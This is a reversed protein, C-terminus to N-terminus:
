PTATNPGTVGALQKKFDAESMSWEGTAANEVKAGRKEWGARVKPDTEAGAPNRFYVRGNEIKELTCAHNLKGETKMDLVVPPNTPYSRLAELIQTNVAPTGGNVHTYPTAFLANALRASESGQLGEQGKRSFDTVGAAYSQDMDEVYNKDGNALEMAGGQFLASAANRSDGKNQELYNSQLELAPGGKTDVKGATSALGGVLRAYESPNKQAMEFEMSTPVCTNFSGQQIWTSPAAVNALVGDLVKQRNMVKDPDMATKAADAFAPNMQQNAVTALNSLLTKGDKDTDNLKAPDKSLTALSQLGAPGAVAMVDLMQRKADPTAQLWAPSTLVQSIAQGDKGALDRSALNLVKTRMDDPLVQAQAVLGQAVVAAEPGQKGSM